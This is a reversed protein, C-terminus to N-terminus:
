HSPAEHRLTDTLAPSRILLASRHCRMGCAHQNAAEGIIEILKQIGLLLLRDGRFQAETKNTLFQEIEKAADVIHKLRADDENPM